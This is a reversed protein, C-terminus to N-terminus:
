QPVFTVMCSPNNNDFCSYVHMTGSSTNLSYSCVRTVANVTASVVTETAITLTAKPLGLDTFNKGTPSIMTNGYSVGILVNNITANSCTTAAGYFSAAEEDKLKSTAITVVSTAILCFTVFVKEVRKM